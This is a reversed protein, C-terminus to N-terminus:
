RDRWQRGRSWDRSPPPSAPPQDHFERVMPSKVAPLSLHTPIQISSNIVAAARASADPSASPANFKQPVVTLGNATPMWHWNVVRLSRGELSFRDHKTMASMPDLAFAVSGRFDFDLRRIITAVRYELFRVRDAPIAADCIVSRKIDTKTYGPRARDSPRRSDCHDSVQWDDEFSIHWLRDHAPAFFGCVPVVPM